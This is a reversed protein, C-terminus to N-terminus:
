KDPSDPFKKIGLKNMRYRLTSPKMGLRAAAGVRGEVVGKCDKVVQIIYSGMVDDLTGAAHKADRENAFASNRLNYRPTFEPRGRCDEVNDIDSRRSTLKADLELTDGGALISSREVINQLERINGPWNYALIEKM